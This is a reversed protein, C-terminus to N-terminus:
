AKLLRYGINMEARIGGPGTPSLGLKRRLHAIHVKIASSSVDVGQGWAADILRAYTVVHGANLALCYLLHFEVRTLAVVHGAKTARQTELDLTLDAVSLERSSLVDPHPEYRRLVADIRALLQRTSFPKPVYDDAGAEFGQLVQSESARESLLIVPTRAQGRIRRCIEFGDVVPLNGDLLVLDPRESAWTQLGQEGDLATLVTYGHRRLAYELVDILDVDDDVLLVKRM